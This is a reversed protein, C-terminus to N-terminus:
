LVVIWKLDEGEFECDLVDAAFFASKCAQKLRQM